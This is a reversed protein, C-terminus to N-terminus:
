KERAFYQFTEALVKLGSLTAPFVQSMIHLVKPLIQICIRLFRGSLFVQM